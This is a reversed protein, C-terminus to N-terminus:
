LNTWPINILKESSIGSFSRTSPNRNNKNFHFLASPSFYDKHNTHM